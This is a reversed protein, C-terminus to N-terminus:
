ALARAWRILTNNRRCLLSRRREAGAQVRLRAVSGHLEMMDSSGDFWAVGAVPVALSSRCGEFGEVGCDGARGNASLSCVGAAIRKAPMKAEAKGLDVIVDQGEERKIMVNITDGVRGIYENSM